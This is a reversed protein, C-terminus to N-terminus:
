KANIVENIDNAAPAILTKLEGDSERGDTTWPMVGNWGNEYCWKYCDSLTMDNINIMGDAGCEGVVVPKTTDLGFSEPTNVFPSSFHQFEWNYYHTSNFDVFAKENAYCGQLFENSSFDGSYLDSNYKVMGFGVTVLINSKEHIAVACRAFYNGLDEWALKGCEDNEYVWDPENCLDISWLYPNDDYREVFPIVYNNVYSDIKDSDQVLNRWIMHNANADKFHDFSILTAMVYIENHAAYMFFSDLDEWHEDTAGTVFGNEDFNIGVDGSCTIWVRTCNIGQNKLEAFMDAWYEYNYNGGFDNWNNWPTNIGNMWIEEGKVMFKNGEIAITLETDYQIKDSDSSNSSNNDASKSSNSNNKDNSCASLSTVAMTIAMLLALLRM